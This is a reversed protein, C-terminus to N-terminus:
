HALGTNVSPWVPPPTPPSSPLGAAFHAAVKVLPAASPSVTDRAPGQECDTTVERGFPVGVGTLINEALIMVSAAAHALHLYGTEPDSAEGGVHAVIHRMAASFYEGHTVGMRFAHGGHKKAGFTMPRAVEYVARWLPFTAWADTGCGAPLVPPTTSAGFPLTYADIAELLCCAAVVCPHLESRPDVKYGSAYAALHNIALGLPTPLPAASVVERRAHYQVISMLVTWPLYDFRPKISDKTM